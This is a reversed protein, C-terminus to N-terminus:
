AVGKGERPAMDLVARVRGLLTPISFPKLLHQNPCGSSQLATLQDSYGSMLLIRLKPFSTALDTALELGSMGPMVVDVLILNLTNFCHRYLALAQIANEALVVRYGASELAEGAPLRVFAEDEVLLIFESGGV